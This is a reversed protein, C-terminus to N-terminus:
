NRLYDFPEKLGDQLANKQAINVIDSISNLNLDICRNIIAFTMTKVTEFVVMDNGLEYYVQGEHVILSRMEYFHKLCLAYNVKEQKDLGNAILCAGRVALMGKKEGRENGELLMTELISSIFLISLAINTQPLIYYIYNLASILRNSLQQNKLIYDNIKKLQVTANNINLPLYYHHAKKWSETDSNSSYLCPITVDFDNENITQNGIKVDVYRSYTYENLQMIHALYLMSIGIRIKVIEISQVQYEMSLAFTDANKFRNIIETADYGYEKAYFNIEGKPVFLVCDPYPLIKVLLRYPKDITLGTIPFLKDLEM